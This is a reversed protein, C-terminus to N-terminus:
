REYAFDDEDDDRRPGRLGYMRKPDSYGKPPRASEMAPPQEGPTMSGPMVCGIYASFARPHGSDAAALYWRAALAVDKQVGVGLQYVRGMQYQADADGRKAAHRCGKLARTTRPMGAPLVTPRGPRIQVAPRGNEKGPAVVGAELSNHGPVHTWGYKREMERNVQEIIRYDNYPRWARKTEPHVRNVVIHIHPHAQDTHMAVIAQHDTLGLRELYVQAAERMQAQTPKDDAHWSVKLHYCPKKVRPAQGAVMEMRQSMAAVTGRPLNYTALVEGKDKDVVYKVAETLSATSAVKGIM